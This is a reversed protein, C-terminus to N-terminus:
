YGFLYFLFLCVFLSLLLITPPEYFTNQVFCLLQQAEYVGERERGRERGREREKQHVCVCVCVCM